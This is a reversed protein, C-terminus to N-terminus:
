CSASHHLCLVVYFVESVHQQIVNWSLTQRTPSALCLDGGQRSTQCYRWDREAAVVGRSYEPRGMARVCAPTMTMTHRQPTLEAELEVCRVM